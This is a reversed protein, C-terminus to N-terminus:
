LHSLITSLHIWSIHVWLPYIFWKLALLISTYFYKLFCPPNLMNIPLQLPNHMLSWIVKFSVVYACLFQFLILCLIPKLPMLYQHVLTIMISTYHMTHMFTFSENLQHIYIMPRHCMAYFSQLKPSKTLDHFFPFSSESGRYWFMHIFHFHLMLVEVSSSPGFLM